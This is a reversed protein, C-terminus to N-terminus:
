FRFLFRRLDIKNNEIIVGEKKLIKIKENNNWKGKYGGIHGSSAIVRHCPIVPANPNNRLAQGVTRYANSNLKDAIIKYTTIKGKPIKKTLNLVKENFNM